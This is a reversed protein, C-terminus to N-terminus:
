LAAIRELVERGEMAGERLILPLGGSALPRLDVVTSAAGVAEDGPEGAFAVSCHSLVAADVEALGVADNEGTINASTAALPMALSTMLGLLGPLDPVRVGLSDATGVLAPRPVTTTVVFTFPGPLLAELVRAAAPELDPLASKVAEVSPFLVAVPQEPSRGKAAFLAAVGVRSDWRAGLGYVTDTPVGIVAGADLAGVLAAKDAVDLEGLARVTAGPITAGVIRSKQSMDKRVSVACFGAQEALVAVAEAQGDGVELLLSGGPRLM